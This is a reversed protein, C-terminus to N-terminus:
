AMRSTFRPPHIAQASTAFALAFIVAVFRTM